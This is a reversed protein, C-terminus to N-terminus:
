CQSTPGGKKKPTALVAGDGSGGEEPEPGDDESGALERTLATREDHEEGDDEM